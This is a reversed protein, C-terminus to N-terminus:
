HTSGTDKDQMSTTTIKEKPISTFTKNPHFLQVYIKSRKSM